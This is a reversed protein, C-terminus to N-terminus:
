ANEGVYLEKDYNLGKNLNGGDPGVDRMDWGWGGYHMLSPM